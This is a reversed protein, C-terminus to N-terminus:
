NKSIQSDDKIDDVNSEVLIDVIDYKLGLDAVFKDSFQYVIDAYASHITKDVSYSDNSSDLKFMADNLSSANFFSDLLIDDATAFSTTKYLSYDYDSAEFSNDVYRGNYGFKVVSKNGEESSLDYSLSFKANLDDENLESFLRQNAGSGSAITYSGDANQGLVNIRRDPELGKIKNFSGGAEANLRSGLEWSTMLQNVILSNDNTQQRRVIGEYDYGALVETINYGEYDTMSQSSSHVYMFNYDISHKENIEYNINALGLYSTNLESRSALQDKSITGDTTTNRVEEEYFKAKNDYSAVLYVNLPNNAIEFKKGGSLAVSKNFNGSKSSPDLSNAFDHQTKYNAPATSNAFGLANTGDPLLLDNGVTQTNVGASVSVNFNGDGTLEKSTININAGGIDAVGTATFAKNVVVSQIVDTSFFDLSINKYEPDESPIPFGNLTTANYRDGLGRVFVNKVGEQKSVGSVKMVAGEADGVGKRSLERAGVVQTAFIADKQDVMAGYENEVNVKAVVQVSALMQTDPVLSVMLNATNVPAMIEQSMYSIYSVVLPQTESEVSIEFSGDFSTATGVTTGKVIVTAGLLPEGTEQDLVVGRLIGASLIQTSAIMMM